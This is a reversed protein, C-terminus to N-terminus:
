GNDRRLQTYRTLVNLTRATKIDQAFNIRVDGSALDDCAVAIQAKIRSLLEPWEDVDSFGRGAGDFAIERSDINVLSLMSVPSEVAAAYVFLQIEEAERDRGLLKKRAGSKYDLIAITDDDFRDVRDFRLPLRVHGAVFEVTGEVSDVQFSGRAADVLVFQRLLKSIRQRELTLLQRLVADCNREHRAFAFNVAEAIRTELEKDRWERIAESSPLDIYLQYLADHVINGRMPAPIGVAQPYILRAGLRGRAFASFPERLQLQITGAGGSIKEGTAVVPM